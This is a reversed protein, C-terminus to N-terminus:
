GAEVMTLRGDADSVRREFEEVASRSVEVRLYIAQEYAVEHVVGEDHLTSVLAHAADTYPLELALEVAEFMAGLAARAADATATGVARCDADFRDTIADRLPGRHPGVILVCDAEALAALLGPVAEALWEPLGDAGPVGPTDTVALEHPGVTAAATAPQAPRGPEQSVAEGTLEGWLQSREAAVRGFLVVNGDVQSYQTRVRDRAAARRRDLEACLSQCQRDLEAHRGDEGTPGSTSETRQATAADRRAIRSQRLSARAAAVPNSEGLWEWVAGRRDLIRASELRSGLDVAQGPHLLGDVVLTPGDDGGLYRTALETVTAPSLYYEADEPRDTVHTSVPRGVQAAVIDVLGHTPQGSQSVVIVPSSMDFGIVVYVGQPGTEKPM